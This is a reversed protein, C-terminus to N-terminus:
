TSRISSTSACSGLLGFALNSGAKRAFQGIDRALTFGSLFEPVRATDYDAFPDGDDAPHFNSPMRPLGCVQM